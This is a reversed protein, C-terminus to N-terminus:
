LECKKRRRFKNKKEPYHLRAHEKPTMIKLNKIRNDARNGNIHHVFEWSHLERGIKKEIIFRHEPIEKGYICIIKYGKLNLYGKGTGTNWPKTGKKFETVISCHNGEKFESEPSLHIGKMGKNWPINGKKFDGKNMEM